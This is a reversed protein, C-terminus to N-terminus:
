EELTTTPLEEFDTVAGDLFMRRRWIQRQEFEQMQEVDRRMENEFYDATTDTNSANEVASCSAIIDAQLSMDPNGEADDMLQKCRMMWEYQLNTERLDSELTGNRARWLTVARSIAPTAGPQELQAAVEEDFISTLGKRLHYGAHEALMRSALWDHYTSVQMFTGNQLGRVNAKLSRIERQLQAAEPVARLFGRKAQRLMRKRAEPDTLFHYAQYTQRAIAASENLIGMSMNVTTLIQPLHLTNKLSEAMYFANREAEAALLGEVNPAYVVQVGPVPVQAQVPTALAVVVLFVIVRKM